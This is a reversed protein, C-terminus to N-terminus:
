KGADEQRTSHLNLARIDQLVLTNGHDVIAWVAALLIQLFEHLLKPPRHTEQATTKNGPGGKQSGDPHQQLGDPYQVAAAVLGKRASSGASDQTGLMSQRQRLAPALGLLQPVHMRPGCQLQIAGCQTAPWHLNIYGQAAVRTQVRSLPQLQCM